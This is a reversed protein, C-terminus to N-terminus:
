PTQLGSLHAPIPKGSASPPVIPLPLSPFAGSAPARPPRPSIPASGPISGPMPPIGTTGPRMAAERALQGIRTKLIDVDHGLISLRVLVYILFGFFAAMVALAFLMFFGEM